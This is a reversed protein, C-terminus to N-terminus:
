NTNQAGTGDLPLFEIEILGFQSEELVIDVFHWTPPWRTRPTMLEGQRCGHLSGGTQRTQPGQDRCTALAAEKDENCPRM